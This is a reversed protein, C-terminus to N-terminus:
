YADAPARADAPLTLPLMEVAADGGALWQYRALNSLVRGVYTRTEDYPIRAV